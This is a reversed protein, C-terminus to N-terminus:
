GYVFVITCTRISTSRALKKRKLMQSVLRFRAIFGYASEVFWFFNVAELPPEVLSLKSQFREATRYKPKLHSPTMNVKRHKENFRAEVGHAKAGIARQQSCWQRM